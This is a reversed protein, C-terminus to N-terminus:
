GSFCKKGQKTNPHSPPWCSHLASLWDETKVLHWRLSNAITYHAIPHAALRRGLIGGWREETLDIVVLWTLCPGNFWYASCSHVPRKMAELDIYAFGRHNVGAPQQMNSKALYPSPGIAEDGFIRLYWKWKKVYAYHMLAYETHMYIHLVHVPDLHGPEVGHTLSKGAPPDEAMRTDVKQQLIVRPLPEVALGWNSAKCPGM